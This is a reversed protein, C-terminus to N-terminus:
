KKESRLIKLVRSFDEPLESDFKIFEETRPHKFGLTKAHLLQGKLNFEQKKSGYIFDGVLPHKIYAMHVRIQHTRGTELVAKILTYKGFRELVYINTVAEKQNLGYVARKKRDKRDRGIPKDITIIDDKINSDVLAYYERTASHEELQRSLSDHAIDNKALMLLGSTDKDIRHVIGPRIVGNISSLKDGCHYMVANVLTGKYNGAAPHVVMGKAKNVVLVDEDEYVIDIPINEPEVDLEKALPINVCISDGIKIKRNKSLEAVGNVTVQGDEILNQIRSRSMDTIETSIATDIRCKDKENTIEIQPMKKQGKKKMM